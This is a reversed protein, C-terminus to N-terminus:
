ENFILAVWYFNLGIRLPFLDFMNACIEARQLAVAQIVSVTNSCKTVYEEIKHHYVPVVSQM